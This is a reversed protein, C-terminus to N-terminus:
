RPRSLPTGAEPEVEISGESMRRSMSGRGTWARLPALILGVLLAAGIWVLAHAWFRPNTLLPLFLDEFMAAASLSWGESAKEDLGLGLSRDSAMQVASTIGLGTLALLIRDRWTPLLGAIAPYLSGLGILGFLPAAPGLWVWAGQARCLFAAPLCVLAVLLAAGPRGVAASAGVVALVAAGYALRGALRSRGAAIAIGTRPHDRDAAPRSSLLGLSRELECGLEEITIRRAPDPDLGAVIAECLAAPLDGRLRWLPQHRGGIARLTAAPSHRRHPNEGSFCEYLVLCLSYVDAGPGVEYGDAAEPSMYALTGVIDGPATLGSEEGLSAVGFDMLKALGEPESILINAPKLDRHIVGRHHAHDLAECLDAGIEAIERDSLLGEDLAERLTQGEVLETVLYATGESYGLEYLTVINPHTLRAVAQAERMIAADEGDPAPLSKIAVHRQLRTDWARHVAGFGGTGLHDEIRFRDLVLSGVV